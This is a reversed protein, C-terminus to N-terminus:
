WSAPPPAGAAPCAGSAAVCDWAFHLTWRGIRVLPERPQDGEGGEGGGEGREKKKKRVMETRWGQMASVGYSFVDNEGEHTEKDTVPQSLYSGM